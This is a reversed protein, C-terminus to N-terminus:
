QLSLCKNINREKIWESIMKLISFEKAMLDHLKVKVLIDGLTCSMCDIV